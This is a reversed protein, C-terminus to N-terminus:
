VDLESRICPAFVVIAIVQAAPFNMLVTKFWARIRATLLAHLRQQRM